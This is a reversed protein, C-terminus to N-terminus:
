PTFHPCCYSDETDVDEGMVPNNSLCTDDCTAIVTDIRDQQRIVSNDSGITMTTAIEGNGFLSKQRNHAFAVTPTLVSASVLITVTTNVLKQPKM